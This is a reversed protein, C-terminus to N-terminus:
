RLTSPGPDDDAYDDDDSDKMCETLHDNPAAGPATGAALDDCDSTVCFGDADDDTCDTSCFANAPDCDCADGFGDTDTDVQDQNFTDTCNDFASCFGDGDVDDEPLCSCVAGPGQLQDDRSRIQGDSDFTGAESSCEVGRTVYYFAQGPLPDVADFTQAVPVDERLCELQSVSFDGATSRLLNLDGKVVDYTCADPHPDWSISAHDPGIVLGTIKGPPDPFVVVYSSRVLPTSGAANTVTLKVSYIGPEDYVHSPHQLISDTLGDNTFDWEWSTPVNQSEDTFDVSLPVPGFLPTGSFDAAPPALSVVVHDQKFEEFEGQPAFITLRVSYTGPQEYVHTPNNETSDVTGDDDFDWAWAQADVTSLDTFNVTLEAPGALPGAAFDAVLAEDKVITFQDEVAGTSDLFTADLMAGDIELVVSGLLYHSVFMAPHDLAGSSLQGANGAVTYVAGQRPVRAALPKQYPGDGIVRGDGADVQHEPGFTDSTGYHGDILFSREYSHSHGSLVLDVGHDELIPVANQRMEVLEFDLLPDDSDHSGKSYPPHHWYAIIWDQDTTALDGALWTLMPGDPARDSEMSDLVVFHVNAFDFSYYSETGSPAGGAEGAAPLTFMDFYPGFQSTSSSSVADHNGFTPWLVSKRLMVPFIDFLAAQYEEDTGISYANDGLMLWLHTHETGTFTHYADRVAMVNADATGSDGLIWVRIPKPTGPVPATDFFHDADGGALVENGALLSYYYRTDPLLDTLPVEHIKRKGTIKVEQDLNDPAPGFRVKSEKKLNTSYRVVIGDSTGLQLYPGRTVTTAWLPASASLFIWLALLRAVHRAPLRMGAMLHFM